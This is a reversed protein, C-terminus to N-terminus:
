CTYKVKPAHSFTLSGSMASTTSAGGADNNTILDSGFGSTTVQTYRQVGTSVQDFVVTHFTQFTGCSPNTFRGILDGTVTKKAFGACTFTVNAGTLMIGPESKNPELYIHHLAMSNTKIEGAEAANSCSFKFGTINEFCAHFALPGTFGTSSGSTIVPVGSVSNCSVGEGKDNVLSFAGGSATFQCSSGSECDATFEGANAVPTLAGFAISASIIFLPLVMKKTM